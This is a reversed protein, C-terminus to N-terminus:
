EIGFNLICPAIVRGRRYAEMAHVLFSRKLKKSGGLM